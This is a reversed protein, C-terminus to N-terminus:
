GDKGSGPGRNADGAAFGDGTEGSGQCGTLVLCLLPLWPWKKM